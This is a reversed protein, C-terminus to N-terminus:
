VNCGVGQVRITGERGRERERESEREGEREREKERESERQLPSASRHHRAQELRFEGSQELVGPVQPKPSPFM